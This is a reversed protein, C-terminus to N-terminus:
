FCTSFMFFILKQAIARAARVINEQVCSSDMFRGTAPSFALTVKFRLPSSLAPVRAVPDVSVSVWIFM